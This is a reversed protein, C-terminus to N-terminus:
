SPDTDRLFSALRRTPVCQCRMSHRRTSLAQATPLRQALACRQTARPRGPTERASAAVRAAHAPRPGPARITSGTAEVAQIARCCAMRPQEHLGCQPALPEPNAVSVSTILAKRHYRVVRVRQNSLAASRTSARSLVRAQRLPPEAKPEGLFVYRTTDKWAHCSVGKKIPRSHLDVRAARVRTSSSGPRRRTASSTSAGRERVVGWTGSEGDLRLRPSRPSRPGRQCRRARPKKTRARAMRQKRGRRVPLRTRAAAREYVAVQWSARSSRMLWLRRPGAGPAEETM